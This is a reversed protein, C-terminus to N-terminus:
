ILRGCFGGYARALFMIVGEWFCQKSKCGGFFCQRM